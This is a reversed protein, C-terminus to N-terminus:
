DYHLVSFASTVSNTLHGPFKLVSPDAIAGVINIETPIEKLRIHPTFKCVGLRKRLLGILKYQGLKLPDISNHLFRIESFLQYTM